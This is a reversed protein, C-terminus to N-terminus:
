AFVLACACVRARVAGGWRVETGAATLVGHRACWRGLVQIHSCPLVCCRSPARPGRMGQGAQPEARSAGRRYM